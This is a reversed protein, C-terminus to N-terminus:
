NRSAGPSEHESPVRVVEVSCGAHRVVADSVSGMLFRNLGTFGYSGMVILDAGWEAAHDLIKSKAEGEEVVGSAQFGAKRLEEATHQVLEQAERRRDEEIAPVHSTLHPIMAASIYARVPEVVNLVRVDTGDRRVQNIVSQVALDSYKSGDIALLLKVTTV